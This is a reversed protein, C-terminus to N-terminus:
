LSGRLAIMGVIVNTCEAADDWRSMNIRNKLKKSEAGLKYHDIVKPLSTLLALSHDNFSIERGRVIASLRERM